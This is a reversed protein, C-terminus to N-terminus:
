VYGSARPMHRFSKVAKGDKIVQACQSADQDVDVETCGLKDM